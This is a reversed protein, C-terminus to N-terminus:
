LNLGLMVILLIQNIFWACGKNNIIIVIEIAFEASILRNEQADQKGGM